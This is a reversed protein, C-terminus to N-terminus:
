DIITISNALDFVSLLYDYPMIDSGYDTLWLKCKNKLTENFMFDPIISDLDHKKNLFLTTIKYQLKEPLLRIYLYFIYFSKSITNINLMNILDTKSKNTDINKIMSMIIIHISLKSFIFQRENDNETFIFYNFRAKLYDNYRDLIYEYYVGINILDNLSNIICIYNIDPNYKNLEDVKYEDLIIYIIDIMTNDFILIGDFLYQTLKSSENNSIFSKITKYRLKINFPLEFEDNKIDKITINLDDCIYNLDYSKDFNNKIYKKVINELWDM